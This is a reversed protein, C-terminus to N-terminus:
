SHHSQGSLGTEDGRELDALVAILSLNGKAEVAIIGIAEIYSKIGIQKYLM